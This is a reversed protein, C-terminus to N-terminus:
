GLVEAGPGQGDELIRDKGFQTTLRERWVSRDGEAVLVHVNPGADLTVIPPTPSKLFEALFHLGEITQPNWYTFPEESTHFLSHMEWM